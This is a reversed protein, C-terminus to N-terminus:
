LVRRAQFVTLFAEGIHDFGVAGNYPNEGFWLCTQGEACSGQTSDEIGSAAEEVM